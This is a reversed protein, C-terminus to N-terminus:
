AGAKDPEVEFRADDTVDQYDWPFVYLEHTKVAAFSPVYGDERSLLAATKVEKAGAKKALAVALELSDGSSAVDDVVLIRLGKLEKPMKRFRGAKGHGAKGSDRSRQGIRVPYFEARLAAALAGGVFVGGHVLGVVAEARFPKCLTALTQVYRDFQVWSIERVRSSQYSRDHGVSERAAEAQPALLADAHVSRLTQVENKKPSRPTRGDATRLRAKLKM